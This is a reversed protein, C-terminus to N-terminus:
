DGENGSGEESESDMTDNQPDYDDDFKLLEETNM